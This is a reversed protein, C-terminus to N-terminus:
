ALLLGNVMAILVINETLISLLNGHRIKIRILSQQLYFPEKISMLTAMKNIMKINKYCTKVDEKSCVGSKDWPIFEEKLWQNDWDMYEKASMINDTNCEYDLFSYKVRNNQIDILLVGDNNDQGDFLFEHLDKNGGYEEFEKLLNGSIAIDRLDFNVDFIRKIKEIYDNEKFYYDHGQKLHYYIYEIGYRARSIMRESHNWNYYNAIILEGNYRVYIQSRQGM